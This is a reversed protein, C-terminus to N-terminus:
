CPPSASARKALNGALAVKAFNTEYNPEFTVAAAYKLRTPHAEDPHKAQGAPRGLIFRGLPMIETAWKSSWTQCRRHDELKTAPAQRCLARIKWDCKATFGVRKM